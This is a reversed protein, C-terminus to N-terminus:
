PLSLTTVGDDDDDDNNDGDDDDDDNNDDSLFSTSLDLCQKTSLKLPRTKENDALALVPFFASSVNM